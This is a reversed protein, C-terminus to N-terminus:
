RKRFTESQGTLRKKLRYKKAVPKKAIKQQKKEEKRWMKKGLKQMQQGIPCGPCVHISANTVSRFQCDQCNELLNHIQIRIMKKEEKTM